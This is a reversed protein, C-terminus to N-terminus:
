LEGLDESLEAFFIVSGHLRLTRRRFGGPSAIPIGKEM